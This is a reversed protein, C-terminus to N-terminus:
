SLRTLTDFNQTVLQKQERVKEEIEDSLRRYNQHVYAMKEQIMDSIKGSQWLEPQNSEIILDNRGLNMGIVGQYKASYSLAIAPTGMQLTSIAAHMRGTVTMLGNGLIFRSRTPLIKDTVAVVAPNQFRSYTLFEEIQRAEDGHPPFTHALLVIKFGAYKKDSLINNILNKYVDFYAKKDNTYYNGQLGSIVLTIYKKPTLGYRNLIDKEMQKDHQLPLDMFALDAGQYVNQDLGFNEKLYKKSWFDRVFIPINQYFYRMVMRNKPRNFPGISQGLLVVKHSQSWRWYKLLDRYIKPTYYESLDDGGLIIVEDYASIESADVLYKRKQLSRIWKFRSTVPDVSEHNHLNVPRSLESQIEDFSSYGNCQCYFETDDGYRKQLENLTVLGMM